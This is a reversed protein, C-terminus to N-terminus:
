RENGHKYHGTIKALKMQIQEQTLSHQQRIFEESWKSKIIKIRKNDRFILIKRDKTIKYSFPREM